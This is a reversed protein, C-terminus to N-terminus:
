NFFVLFVKIRALVFVYFCSDDFSKVTSQFSFHPLTKSMFICHSIYIDQVVEQMRVVVRKMSSYVHSRGFYISMVFFFYSRSQVARFRFQNPFKSDSILHTNSSALTFELFPYKGLQVSSIKVMADRRGDSGGTYLTLSKLPSTM